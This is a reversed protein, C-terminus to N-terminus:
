WRQMLIFTISDKEMTTSLDNGFGIARVYLGGFSILKVFKISVCLCVKNMKTQKPHPSLLM